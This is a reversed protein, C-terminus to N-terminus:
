VFYPLETTGTDKLRVKYESMEIKYCRFKFGKDEADRYYKMGVKEAVRDSSINGPRVIAVIRPVNLVEFGFSISAKVAETAYGKGWHPRDVLYAVEVENMFELWAVGCHGLVIGSNKEVMCWLGYGRDQWHKMKWSISQATEAPTKAGKGMHQMGIPDAYIKVFDPIDQETFQRLILRTTEIQNSVRAM